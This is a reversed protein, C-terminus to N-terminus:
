SAELGYLYFNGVEINGSSFRFRIANVASSNECNGSGYYFTMDNGTDQGYLDWIASQRMQAANNTPLYWVWGAVGEGSANGIGTAMSIVSVTSSGSFEGSASGSGSDLLSFTWRYGAALFTSGGDTSFLLNFNVNDTQPHCNDILVVFTAYTSTDLDFDITASNSATSQTILIWDGTTPLTDWILGTSEGSDVQLVEDNAGVAMRVYNTGDHVLLDGKATLSVSDFQGSAADFIPLDGTNINLANTTTM